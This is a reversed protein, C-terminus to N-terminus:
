PEHVGFFSCFFSDEEEPQEARIKHASFGCAKTVYNKGYFLFDSYDKTKTKKVIM